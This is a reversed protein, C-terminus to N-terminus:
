SRDPIGLHLEGGAILLHLHKMGVGCPAILSKPLAQRVLKATQM